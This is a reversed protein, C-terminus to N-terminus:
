FFRINFFFVDMRGVVDMYIDNGGLIERNDNKTSARM